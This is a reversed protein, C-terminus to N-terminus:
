RNLMLSTKSSSIAQVEREYLSLPQRIVDPIKVSHNDRDVFAIRQEGKGVLKHNADSYFEFVLNLSSPRIREPYVEIYMKDYLHSEGKIKISAELTLMKIGAEFLPTPDPMIRLLFEERAVSQWEFFREYYVGGYMNVDAIYIKMPMRFKICEKGEVEQLNGGGLHSRYYNRWVNNVIDNFKLAMAMKPQESKTGEISFRVMEAPIDISIEKIPDHITVVMPQSLSSVIKTVNTVSPNLEVLLGHEAIDKSVAKVLSKESVSVSQPKCFVPLQKEIRSSRRNDCGNHKVKEVYDTVEGATTRSRGKEWSRVNYQESFAQM